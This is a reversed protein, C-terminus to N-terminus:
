RLHQTTERFCKLLISYIISLDNFHKEYIRPTLLLFMLNCINNAKMFSLYYRRFLKLAHQTSLLRQM